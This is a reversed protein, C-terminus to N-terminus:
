RISTRMYCIRDRLSLLCKECEIPCAEVSFGTPLDAVYSHDLCSSARECHAFCQLVDVTYQMSPSNTLAGDITVLFGLELDRGLAFEGALVVSGRVQEVPGQVFNEALVDLLAAALHLRFLKRKVKRVRARHR